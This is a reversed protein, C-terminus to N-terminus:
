STMTEAPSPEPATEAKKAVKYDNNIIGKRADVTTTFVTVYTDEAVQEDVKIQYLGPSVIAAYRGYKDTVKRQLEVDDRMVRVVAYPVPRGDREITGYLLPGGHVYRYIMVAVYVVLLFGSFVDLRIIFQALAFLAGFYFLLNFIRIITRDFRHYFHTQKTRLKEFQNWDFAVPDMPIDRNVAGSIQLPGGYYPDNYLGGTSAMQLRKSPFTYNTKKVNMVYSGEPVVFGYRGDLDTIADGASENNEDLLEVLAPDLPAKTVSDYVTGWPRRRRSVSTYGLLYLWLHTLIQWLNSAAFPVRSSALLTSLLGWAAGSLETPRSVPDVAKLAPELQQLQERAAATSRKITELARSPILADVAKEITDTVSDVVDTVSEALGGGPTIVSSTSSTSSLGGGGGGTSGGGTTPTEAGTEPSSDDVVEPETVPPEETESDVIPDTSTAEPTPTPPTSTATTSTATETTTTATETSTATSTATDDPFTKTSSSVVVTSGGGGTNTVIPANLYVYYGGNEFTAGYNTSSGNLSQNADGVSYNQLSFNESSPQAWALLPFFFVLSLLLFRHM